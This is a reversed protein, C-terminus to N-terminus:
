TNGRGRERSKSPRPNTRKAHIQEKGADALERKTASGKGTMASKRAGVALKKSM